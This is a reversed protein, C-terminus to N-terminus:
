QCHKHGADSRNENKSVAIEKVIKAHHGFLSQEIIRKDSEDDSWNKEPNRSVHASNVRGFSGAIM